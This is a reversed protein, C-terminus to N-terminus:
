RARVISGLASVHSAPTSATTLPSASRAPNRVGADPAMAPRVVHNMTAVQVAVPM